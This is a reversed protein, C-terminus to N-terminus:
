DAALWEACVLSLRWLPSINAQATALHTETPQLAGSQQVNRARTERIEMQASIGPV